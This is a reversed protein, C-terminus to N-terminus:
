KMNPISNEGMGTIMLLFPLAVVFWAFGVYGKECLVNLVWAWFFVFALNIAVAIFPLKYMIATLCSIIGLAIYILAPRCFETFSAM